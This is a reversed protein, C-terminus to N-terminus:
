SVERQRHPTSGNSPGRKEAFNPDVRESFWTEDQRWRLGEALLVEDIRSRKIAIACQDNLYAELRDLTWMGFPLGLTDPKTLATAIVVSVEDPTYTVPRGRRPADHLADLGAANFRKLWLRVTQEHLHLQKAIAPVSLGQAAHWIIRAREVSRAAATRSHALRDIAVQEEETLARVRIAM